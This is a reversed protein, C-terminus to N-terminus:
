QYTHQTNTKAIITKKGFLTGKNDAGIRNPKEGMGEKKVSKGGTYFPYKIFFFFRSLLALTHKFISSSKRGNLVAAGDGYPRTSAQQDTSKDNRPRTGM